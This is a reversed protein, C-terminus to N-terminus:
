PQIRDLPAKESSSPEEDKGDMSIVSAPVPTVQDMTKIPMATKTEVPSPLSETTPKPPPTESEMIPLPAKESSSSEEEKGDMSIVSTPVPVVQDMTKIPMVTETEVPSSLSETPPKPPPTESETLSSRLSSSVCPKVVRLSNPTFASASGIAASFVVLSSFKM